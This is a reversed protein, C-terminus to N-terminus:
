HSVSEYANALDIWCASVSKQQSRADKVTSWLKAQHETCGPVSPTFAKQINTSMYNNTLMFDCWRDKLISTFLKGVCSTLIIPRFNSPDKPNDKASSKGILRITAKKWAAPASGSLWCLNYLDVLAPVLTPCHKLIYCSVQDEPSPSLSNRAKKLKCLAEDRSIEASDMAVDPLPVSKMWPPTTFPQPSKDENFYTYAEAASFDPTVSSCGQDDYDFYSKLMSGFIITVNDNRKLQLNITNSIKQSVFLRATSESQKTSNVDSNMSRIVM